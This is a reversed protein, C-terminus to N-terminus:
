RIKSMLIGLTPQFKDLLINHIVDYEEQNLLGKDLLAKAISIAVQYRKEAQFQIKTMHIVVEFDLVSMAATAAINATPIVMPVLNIRATLAPLYMYLKELSWNLTSIGGGSVATQQAFSLSKEVKFRTYHNAVVYASARPPFSELM